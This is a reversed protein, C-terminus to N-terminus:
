ALRRIPAGRLFALIAEVAGRHWDGYTERTVYGLHPTAIVNPLTRFPHDTPLPEVDFVDLAATVDPRARLAEILATEDILPGRASNVIVAGERLLALQPAGIMSRSQPTLTAHLSIVDAQAMLDGLGCAPEIGLEACREPTASRTWGLVRMDFARGYAAMKAGLKGLGIIGLSRGALERGITAQWPRGARLAQSEDPVHRMAALLLAFAMEAAPARASQAGCVLVGARAAAELDIAANRMGTTVLLKLHPLRAFLAADFRTRERMCLVAAFPSLREVLADQSPAPADFVSIPGLAAVASWDASTLAVRQYDDLIALSFAPASM